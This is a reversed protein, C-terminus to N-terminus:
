GRESRSLLGGAEVLMRPGPLLAIPSDGRKLAVIRVRENDGLASITKGVLSSLAPIRVEELDIEEGQGPLILNLFDVV